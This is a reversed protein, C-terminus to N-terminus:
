RSRKTSQPEEGEAMRLDKGRRLRDRAPDTARDFSSRIGSLYGQSRRRFCKVLPQSAIAISQGQRPKTSIASISDTFFNRNLWAVAMATRECLARATARIQALILLYCCCRALMEQPRVAYPPPMRSVAINPRGM